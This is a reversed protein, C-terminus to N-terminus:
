PPIKWVTTSSKERTGSIAGGSVTYKNLTQKNIQKNIKILDKSPIQLSSQWTARPKMQVDQIEAKDNLLITTFILHDSELVYLLYQIFSHCNEKTDQTKITM